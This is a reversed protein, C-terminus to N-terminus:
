FLMIETSEGDNSFGCGPPRFHAVDLMCRRLLFFRFLFTPIILGSPDAVTCAVVLTAAVRDAPRETVTEHRSVRGSHIVRYTAHHSPLIVDFRRECM